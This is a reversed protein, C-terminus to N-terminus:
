GAAAPSAATPRSAGAWSFIVKRIFQYQPPMWAGKTRALSRPDKSFPPSFTSMTSPLPDAVVPWSTPVLDSVKPQASPDVTARLAALPTGTLATAVIRFTSGYATTESSSFFMRVALSRSPLDRAIVGPSPSVWVQG